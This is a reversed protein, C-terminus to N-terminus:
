FGTHKAVRQSNSFKQEGNRACFGRLPSTGQGCICGAQGVCRAHVAPQARKKAFLRVTARRLQDPDRGLAQLLARAHRELVAADAEARERYLRQLALFSETTATMDPISGQAPNYPGQFFYM